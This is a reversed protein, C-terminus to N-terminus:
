QLIFRCHKKICRLLHPSGVTFFDTKRLLCGFLSDFFNDIGKAQQLATLFLGDFQNNEM